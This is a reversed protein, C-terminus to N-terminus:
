LRRWHDGTYFTYIYIILHKRWIYIYTYTSCVNLKNRLLHWICQSQTIVIGMHPTSLTYLNFNCLVSVLICHMRVDSFYHIWKLGKSHYTRRKTLSHVSHVSVRYKGVWTSLNNIHSSKSLTQFSSPTKWELPSLLM